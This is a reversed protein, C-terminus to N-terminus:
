DAMVLLAEVHQQVLGAFATDLESDNSANVVLIKQGLAAAASQVVRAESEAGPNAPNALWGVLKATPAVENLLQLQKPELTNSLIAVGTLNGSPRNLSSVLTLAACFFSQSRPPRTKRLWDLPSALPSFQM